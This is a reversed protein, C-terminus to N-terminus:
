MGQLLAGVVPMLALHFTSFYLSFLEGDSPFPTLM